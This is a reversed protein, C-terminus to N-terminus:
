QFLTKITDLFEQPDIPEPKPSGAGEHRDDIAMANGTKQSKPLTGTNTDMGESKTARKRKKPKKIEDELYTRRLQKVAPKLPRNIWMFEAQGRSLREVNENQPLVHSFFDRCLQFLVKRTIPQKEHREVLTLNGMGGFRVEEQADPTIPLMESPIHEIVQQVQPTIRNLESRVSRLKANLQRKTYDLELFRALM